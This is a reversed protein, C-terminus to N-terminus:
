KLKDERRLREMNNDVWEQTWPSLHIQYDNKHKHADYSLWLEEGIGYLIAVAIWFLFM